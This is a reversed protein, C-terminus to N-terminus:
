GRKNACSPSKKDFSPLTRGSKSTKHRPAPPLRAGRHHYDHRGGIGIMPGNGSLRTGGHGCSAFASAARLEARADDRLGAVMQGVM